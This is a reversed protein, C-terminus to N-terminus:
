DPVLSHVQLADDGLLPAALVDSERSTFCGPAPVDPLPQYPKEIITARAASAAHMVALNGAPLYAYGGGTLSAGGIEIEGALVYVFRQVEDPGLSGGAEFETTYQTFRAGLAPATHVIATAKKMGPLPARVFTDPTQLLHNAQHASRTKGLHHM